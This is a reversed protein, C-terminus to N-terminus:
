LTTSLYPSPKGFGTVVLEDRARTAAVYLLCREKLDNWHSAIEDLEVELRLPMTGHQIGVLMIRSFELGKMRHMTALRAGPLEQEKEPDKRVMVTDIGM